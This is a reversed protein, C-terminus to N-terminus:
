LIRLAPLKGAEGYYLYKRGQPATKKITPSRYRRFAERFNFDGEVALIYIKDGAWEIELRTTSHTAIIGYQLKSELAFTTPKKALFSQMAEESARVKVSNFEGQLEIDYGELKGETNKREIFRLGCLLVPLGPDDNSEPLLNSKGRFAELRGIPGTADKGGETKGGPFSVFLPPLKEDGLQKQANAPNDPDVIRFELPFTPENDAPEPAVPTQALCAAPSVALAVFVSLVALLYASEKRWLM